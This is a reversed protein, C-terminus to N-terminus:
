VVLITKDHLEKNEEVIYYCHLIGSENMKLLCERMDTLAIQLPELYFVLPPSEAWKPIKLINMMQKINFSEKLTGFDRFIECVRNLHGIFKEELAEFRFVPVEKKKMLVEIFHLNLNSEFLLTLPKMASSHIVNMEVFGSKIHKTYLKDWEKLLKVLDKKWTIYSDATLQIEMMGPDLYNFIDVIKTKCNWM